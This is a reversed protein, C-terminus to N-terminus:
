LKMGYLLIGVGVIPPPGRLVHADVNDPSTFALVSSSSLFCSPESTLSGVVASAKRISPSKLLSSSSMDNLKNLMMAICSECCGLDVFIANSANLAKVYMM